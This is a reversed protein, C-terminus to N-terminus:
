FDKVADTIPQNNLTQTKLILIHVPNDQIFLSHRVISSTSLYALVNPYKMLMETGHLLSSHSASWKQVVVGLM